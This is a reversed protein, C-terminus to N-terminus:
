CIKRDTEGMGPLGLFVGGSQAQFNRPGKFEGATRAMGPAFSDGSRSDM